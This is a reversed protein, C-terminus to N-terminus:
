LLCHHLSSTATGECFSIPTKWQVKLDCYIFRILHKLKEGNQYPLSINIHYYWYDKTLLCNCKLIQLLNIQYKRVSISM